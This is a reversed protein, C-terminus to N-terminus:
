RKEGKFLVWKKHFTVPQPLIRSQQATCLGALELCEYNFPDKNHCLTFFTPLRSGKTMIAAKRHSRGVSFKSRIQLLDRHELISAFDAFNQTSAAYACNYFRSFLIREKGFCFDRRLGHNKNLNFHLAYNM